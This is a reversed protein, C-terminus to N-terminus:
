NYFIGIDLWWFVFGLVAFVIGIALILKWTDKYDPELGDPNSYFLAM